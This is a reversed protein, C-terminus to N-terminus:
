DPDYRAKLLEYDQPTDIDKAMFGDLWPLYEVRFESMIARGGQDGMVTALRELTRKPFYVPTGRFDNVYPVTIRDTALGRQVICSLYHPNVQPQDGLLILTGALGQPLSALGKRLSTSQGESWLENRVVVCGAPLSPEIMDANAGLVVVVPNLGATIATKVVACLTTSGKWPLMQKISGFRSSSGAALVIGAVNKYM